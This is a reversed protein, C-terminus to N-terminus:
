LFDIKLIWQFSQHQLKLVKAVQHLFSVWQFLGQHHSLSFAPPFLSLLIHSPQISNSVWHVHTQALELPQHHVPFGPISCDMSKCLTPCSLAFSSFQNHSSVLCTVTFFILLCIDKSFTSWITKWYLYYVKVFWYIMFFSFM